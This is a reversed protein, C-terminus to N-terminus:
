KLVKTAKGGQRVIFVGHRGVTDAVRRGDITYVETVASQNDADVTNIGVFGNANVGLYDLVLNLSTSPSTVHVAMRYAGSAEPTFRLAFENDGEIVTAPLLESYTEPHMGQGYFASVTEPYESGMPRADFYFTYEVGAELQVLPTIFWDDADEDSNYKYVYTGFQEGTWQWTYGDRNIDLVTYLSAGQQADFDERFPVELPAGTAANNSLAEASAQDGNIAKVGFHCPKRETIASLDKHLENSNASMAMARRTAPAAQEEGDVYCVVEYTINDADFYGGNLSTTVADWTVTAKGEADIDLLVNQPAAPVDYGIWLTLTADEGQGAENTAYVRFRTNGSPVTVSETINSGAAATKEVIKEGNAYVLYNLDGTLTQGDVSTSPLTFSLTGANAGEAFNAALNTVASPAAQAAAKKAISLAFFREQWPFNGRVTATGTAPDVEYLVGEDEVTTAWWLHGTAPDFCMSQDVNDPWVGIDGVETEEGTQKNIQYLVGYDDIGYLNGQYDCAICMYYHELEGIDERTLNDIDVRALMSSYGYNAEYIGYLEGSTPDEILMGNVAALEEPVEAGYRLDDRDWHVTGDAAFYCEYIACQVPMYSGPDYYNIFQFLDNRFVGGGNANMMTSVYVTDLQITQAPKFKYIGRLNDLSNNIDTEYVLNAIFEPLQADSSQAAAHGGMLLAALAMMISTKNRKM